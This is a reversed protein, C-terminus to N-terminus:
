RQRTICIAAPLGSFAYGQDEVPYDGIEVITGTYVMGTDWSNVTVSQGMQITNLALESVTGQVYYGGGGSVKMLPEGTELAVAPELIQTVVGDFAATIKGDLAEKKMINLEAKGTKIDFQLQKIEAQKENKM